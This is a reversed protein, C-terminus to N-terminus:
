AAGNEGLPKLRNMQRRSEEGPLHYYHRTVGSDKHGLWQMVAQEAINSHFCISCFYHRFSHIRGDKFGRENEDSPFRKALPEIVQKVLAWRVNDPWLKGGLPARFVKASSRDKALRELTPRLEEHIPFSRDRKGKTTQANSQRGRKTTTEDRLIIWGEELDVNSWRLDALESIRMGTYILGVIVDALWVLSPNARCLELMAMVEEERYCYTDTGTPKRLPMRIRASEPLLKESIWWNFATKIQTLEFFETRYARGNDELFGAYGELNSRKVQNWSTIDKKRAFEVFKRFVPCYRKYTSDSVGGVVKPRRCHELYLDMGRQLELQSPRELALEKPDILGLEAARLRDLYTLNEIAEDYDRTGLSHRGPSPQNTRGDAHWVGQRLRLTWLFHEARIKEAKQRAM